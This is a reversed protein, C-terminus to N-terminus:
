LTNPTNVLNKIKKYKEKDFYIYYIFYGKDKLDEADHIIDKFEYEYLTGEDYMMDLKIYTNKYEGDNNGNLDNDNDGDDDSESDNNIDNSQNIIYEAIFKKNIQKLIGIIEKNMYIEWHTINSNLDIKKGSELKETGKLIAYLHNNKANDSNLVHIDGKYVNIGERHLIAIDDDLDQVPNRTTLINFFRSDEVNLSIKRLAEDIHRFTNAADGFSGGTMFDPSASLTFSPDYQEQMFNEYKNLFNNYSTENWEEKDPNEKSGFLNEISEVLNNNNVGSQSKLLNIYFNKITRHAFLGYLATNLWCQNSGNDGGKIHLIDETVNPNREKRIDKNQSASRIAAVSIEPSVTKGQEKIKTAEQPKNSATTTLEVNKVNASESQNMNADSVNTQLSNDVVNTTAPTFFSSGYSKTEKIVKKGFDQFKQMRKNFTEFTSLRNVETTHNLNFTYVCLKKFKKMDLEYSNKNFLNLLGEAVRQIEDEHPSSSEGEKSKQSSVISSTYYKSYEAINRHKHYGKLKSYVLPVNYFRVINEKYYDSASTSSQEGISSRSSIPPSNVQTSNEFRITSVSPTFPINQKM